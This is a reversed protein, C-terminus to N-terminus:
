RSAPTRSRLAAAVSLLVPAFTYRLQPSPAAAFLALVFGASGWWMAQAVADRQRWRLWVVLTAISLYVWPRFYWAAYHVRAFRAVADAAAPPKTAIGFPNIIGGAFGISWAPQTVGLTALGIDTRHDLYALPSAAIVRLWANRLRIMEAAGDVHRVDPGWVTPDVALRSRRAIVNPVCGPRVCLWELEEPALVALDHIFIQQLPRAPAETLSFRAVFAGLLGALLLAWRKTKIAVPFLIAWAHLRLTALGAAALLPRLGGNCLLLAAGAFWTEKGLRLNTVTVIPMLCVVIAGRLGILRYLASMLLLQSAFFMPATGLSLAQSWRTLWVLTAPHWGTAVGAKAEGWMRQSDLDFAGPGFALVQALTLGLVCLLPRWTQRWARISLFHM